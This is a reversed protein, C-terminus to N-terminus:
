SIDFMERLLVLLGVISPFLNSEEGVKFYHWVDITLALNIRKNGIIFNYYDGNVSCKVLSPKHKSHTNGWIISIIELHFMIKGM